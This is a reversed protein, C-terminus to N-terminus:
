KSNELMQFTFHQKFIKRRFVNIRSLDLKFKFVDKKSKSM